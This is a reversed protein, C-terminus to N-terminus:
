VGWAIIIWTFWIARMYEGDDYHTIYEVKFENKINVCIWHLGWFGLWKWHEEDGGYGINFIEAYWYCLRM